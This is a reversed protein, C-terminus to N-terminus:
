RVVLKHTTTENNFEIVAFYMGAKLNSINVGSNLDNQTIAYSNVVKGSIDILKVSSGAQISSIFLPSESNIPNPFLSVESSEKEISATKKKKDEDEKKDDEECNSYFFTFTYTVTRLYVRKNRISKYTIKFECVEKMITISDPCYHLTSIIESYLFEEPKDPDQTAATNRAAGQSLHSTNPKKEAKKKYKELRRNSEKEDKVIEPTLRRTLQADCLFAFLLFVSFLLKAKM